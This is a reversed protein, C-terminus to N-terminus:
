CGSGSNHISLMLIDQAGATVLDDMVIAIERKVVQSEVVTDIAKLGAAKTTEGSELLNTTNAGTWTITYFMFPFFSFYQTQGNKAVLDVIGNAVGLACAAEVSGGLDIIKTKLKVPAM